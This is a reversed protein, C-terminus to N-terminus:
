GAGALVGAIVMEVNSAGIVFINAGEATAMGATLTLLATTGDHRTGFWKELPILGDGGYNVECYKHHLYHTDAHSEMAQGETLDLRDFGIHGVIAGYGTSTLQFLAVFPSSPIVPHWMMEPFFFASEVPHMSM